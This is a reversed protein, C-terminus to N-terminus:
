TSSRFRDSPSAFGSQPSSLIFDSWRALLAAFRAESHDVRWSGGSPLAPPTMSTRRCVFTLRPADFPVYHAM